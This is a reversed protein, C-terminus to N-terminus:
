KRVYRNRRFTPVTLFNVRQSLKYWFTVTFSDSMEERMKWNGMTAALFISFYNIYYCTTTFRSRSWIFDHISNVPATYCMCVWVCTIQGCHSFWYSAHLKTSPQKRNDKISILKNECRLNIIKCGIIGKNLLRCKLIYQFM